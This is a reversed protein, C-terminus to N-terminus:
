VFLEPDCSLCTSVSSLYIHDMTINNHMIIGIFWLLTAIHGVFFGHCVHLDSDCVITRSGLFFM